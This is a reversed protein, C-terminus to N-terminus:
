YNTVVTTLAVSSGWNTSPATVTVTIKKYDTQSGNAITRTCSGAVPDTDVCSNLAGPNVYCVQVQRTFSVNNVTVSDTCPPVSGGGPALDNFDDVDDYSALTTETASGDDPGLSTSPTATQVCTGVSVSTEDFCKSKIEEM